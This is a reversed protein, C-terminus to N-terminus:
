IFMYRFPSRQLEYRVWAFRWVINYSSELCSEALSIVHRGGIAYFLESVVLDAVSERDMM